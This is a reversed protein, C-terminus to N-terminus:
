RQPGMSWEPIGNKDRLTLTKGNAKVKRAIIANSNGFSVKSGTVEIKDGKSVNFNKQNLFSSPGLMVTMPGSATKVLLHTGGMQGSGNGNSMRGMQSQNGMQGQQMMGHQGQMMGQQVEEVTGKITTVTSPNYMGMGHHQGQGMGQAMGQGMQAFACPAMLIAAFVALLSYSFRLRFNM